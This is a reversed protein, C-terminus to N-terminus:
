QYRAPVQILHNRHIMNYAQCAFHTAEENLIYSYGYYNYDIGAPTRAWDLDAVLEGKFHNFLEELPACLLVNPIQVLKGTALLYLARTITIPTTPQPLTRSQHHQPQPPLHAGELSGTSMSKSLSYRLEPATMPTTYQREEIMSELTPSDTM